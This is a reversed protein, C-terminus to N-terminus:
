RTVGEVAKPNPLPVEDLWVRHFNEYTSMLKGTIGIGVPRVDCSRVLVQGSGAVPDVADSAVLVDPGGFEKVEIVRM